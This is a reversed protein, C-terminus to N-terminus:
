CFESTWGANGQVVIAGVFPHTTDPQGYTIAQVPAIAVMLGVAVLLGALSM